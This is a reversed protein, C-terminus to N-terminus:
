PTYQLFIGSPPIWTDNDWPRTTEEDLPQTKPMPQVGVYVGFQDRRRYCPKTPGGSWPEFSKRSIPNPLVIDQCVTPPKQSSQPKCPDIRTKVIGKEKAKKGTTAPAGASNYPTTQGTVQEVGHPARENSRDWPKDRSSKQPGANSYFNSLMERCKPDNVTKEHADWMAKSTNPWAHEGPCYDM